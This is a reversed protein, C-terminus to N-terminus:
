ALGRKEVCERAIQYLNVGANSKALLGKLGGTTRFYMLLSAPPVLKMIQPYQIVYRRIDKSVHFTSFYFPEDTLLPTLLTELYDGMVDTPPWATDSAGFGMQQLRDVVPAYDKNWMDLLILLINDALEPEFRKVCGFDLVILRGDDDVLFNGPHPDVHTELELHFGMVFFRVLTEALADRENAPLREFVDQLPAGDMYEM